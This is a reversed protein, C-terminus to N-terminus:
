LGGPFDIYAVNVTTGDEQVGGTKRATAYTANLGTKGGGSADGLGTTDDVHVQTGPVPEFSGTLRLPVGLGKRCISTFGIDSLDRGLSVGIHSGDAAATSITGDNKLVVVAGAAISGKLNDVSRFSSNTAGLLVKNDDQLSM